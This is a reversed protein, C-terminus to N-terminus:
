QELIHPTVTLAVSGISLISSVLVFLPTTGGAVKGLEEESMEAAQAEYLSDLEDEKLDYGEELAIPIIIKKYDGHESDPNENVKAVIKNLFDKDNGLREIFEKTTKM